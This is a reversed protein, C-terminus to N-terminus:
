RVAGRGWNIIWKTVIDEVSIKSTEIDNLVDESLEIMEKIKDM